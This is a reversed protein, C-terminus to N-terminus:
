VPEERQALKEDIARNACVFDRLARWGIGFIRKLNISNVGGQRDKFTVPIYTVRQHRKAYIVSLLVNSLFCDAPILKINESLSKADMLRFPTNADAIDVHFCLRVVAKLTKTVLVRALGDQRANRWGIQADYDHRQQWFRWFEDPDTQGDSDTQFVFDAGESLAFRYATM